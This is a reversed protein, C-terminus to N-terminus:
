LNQLKIKYLVFEFKEHVIVNAGSRMLRVRVEPM